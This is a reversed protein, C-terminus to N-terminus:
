TGSAGPLAFVVLGVVGLLIGKAALLLVSKVAVARSGGENSWGGPFDDDLTVLHGLFAWAALVLAPAGLWVGLESRGISTAAASALLSGAFVALIVWRFHKMNSM